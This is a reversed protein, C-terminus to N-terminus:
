GDSGPSKRGAGSLRGGIAGARSPESGRDCRDRGGRYPIFRFQDPGGDAHRSTFSNAFHVLLRNDPAFAGHECRSARYRLVLRFVCRGGISGPLPIRWHRVCEDGSRLALGPTYRVSCCRLSRSHKRFNQQIPNGFHGLGDREPFHSPRPQNVPAFKLEHPLMVDVKTPRFPNIGKPLALEAFYPM